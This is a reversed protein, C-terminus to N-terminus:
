YEWKRFTKLESKGHRRLVEHVTIQQPTMNSECYNENNERDCGVEFAYTIMAEFGIYREFAEDFATKEDALAQRLEQNYKELDTIEKYIRTAEIYGSHQALIDKIRLKDTETLGM